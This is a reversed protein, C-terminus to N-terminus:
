RFQWPRGPTPSLWGSEDVDFRQDGSHRVEGSIKLPLQSVQRDVLRRLSDVAAADLTGEVRFLEEGLAPIEGSFDPELPALDRGDVALRLAVADLPLQRAAPNSLRFRAVFARTEPEVELSALRARPPELRVKKGGCSSVLLALTLCSLLPILSRRYM